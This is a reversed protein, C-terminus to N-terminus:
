ASFIHVKRLSSVSNSHQGSSTLLSGLQFRLIGPLFHCYTGLKDSHRQLDPLRYEMAELLNDKAEARRVLTIFLTFHIFHHLEDIIYLM